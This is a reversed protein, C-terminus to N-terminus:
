PADRWRWLGLVRWGQAPLRGVPVCVAGAGRVAHLVRGRGAWVGVHCPDRRAAMLVADGPAPTDVPRWDPGAAAAALARREGVPSAPLPVDPVDWGFEERWVQQAFRWCGAGDVFPAGVWRAAWDDPAARAATDPDTRM